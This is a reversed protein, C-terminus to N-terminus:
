RRMLLWGLITKNWGPYRRSVRYFYSSSSISFSSFNNTWKVFLQKWFLCLNYLSFFYYLILFHFAMIWSIPFSFVISSICWILFISITVYAAPYL